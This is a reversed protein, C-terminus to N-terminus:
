KSLRGINKKAEEIWPALGDGIVRGYLEIARARWMDKADKNDKAADSLRECCQAAFFVARAFDGQPQGASPAYLLVTHLYDLLAQRFLAPSPNKPDSAQAFYCDGRGTRAGACVMRKVAPDYKDARALLDTLSSEAKKFNNEGIYARASGLEAKAQVAAIGSAKAATAVTDYKGIADRFKGDLELIKPELLDIELSAERGLGAAKIGAQAEGIATRASDYAKKGAYSMIMTSYADVIYRSDKFDKILDKISAIAKDFKGTMFCSVGLGYLIQQKFVPRTASGLAKEYSSVAAEYDGAEFARDASSHVSSKDKYTILVVDAWKVEVRAEGGAGIKITVGKVTEGVIEGVTEGDKKKVVDGDQAAAFQACLILLGLMATAFLSRKLM